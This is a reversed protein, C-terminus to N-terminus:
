KNTENLLKIWKDEFLDDSLNDKAFRIMEKSLKDYDSDNLKYLENVKKAFNNIDRNEILFVGPIKKYFEPVCTSDEFIVAPTGNMIAEAIVTEFGENKSTSIFVRHKQFIKDKDIYDYKGVFEGNITKMFDEQPGHGYIRLKCDLLKAIEKLDYIGKFNSSFRGSWLVGTREGNYAKKYRGPSPPISLKGKKDYYVTKNSIKLPNRFTGIGLLSDLRQKLFDPFNFDKGIYFRESQHQVFITKKHKLLKKTFYSANSVIIVDYKNNKAFKNQLNRLKLNIKKKKLTKGFTFNWKVSVSDVTNRENKEASYIPYEHVEHGEKLFRSMIKRNYTSIGGGGWHVTSSIIAIKM